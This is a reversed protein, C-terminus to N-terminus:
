TIATYGTLVSVGKQEQLVGQPGIIRTISLGLINRISTCVGSAQYIIMNQCQLTDNHKQNIALPLRNQTTEFCFLHHNKKLIISCIQPKCNITQGQNMFQSKRSKLLLQGKLSIQWFSILCADILESVLLKFKSKSYM